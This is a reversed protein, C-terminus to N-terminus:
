KERKIVYCRHNLDIQPIRQQRKNWKRNITSKKVSPSWSTTAQFAGLFKSIITWSTAGGWENPFVSLQLHYLPCPSKPFFPEELVESRVASPKNSTDTDSGSFQNRRRGKLLQWKAWWMIWEQLENSCLKMKNNVPIGFFASLFDMMRSVSFIEVHTSPSLSILVILFNYIFFTEHRTDGTM